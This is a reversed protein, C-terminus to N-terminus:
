VLESFDSSGISGRMERDSATENMKETAEAHKRKM